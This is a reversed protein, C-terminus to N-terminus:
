RSVGRLRAVERSAHEELLREVEATVEPSEHLMDVYGCRSIEDVLYQARDTPIDTNDISM